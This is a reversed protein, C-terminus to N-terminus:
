FCRAKILMAGYLPSILVGVLVAVIVFRPKQPHCIVKNLYEHYGRWNKPDFIMRATLKAIYGLSHEKFILYGIASKIRPSSQSESLKRYGDLDVLARQAWNKRFSDNGGRSNVIIQNSYYFNGGRTIIELLIFVHSYLSGIYSKDFAILNWENRKVIISSLYSFLGGLTKCELIYKELDEKGSLELTYNQNEVGIWSRKRVFNMELDCDNRNYLAVAPNVADLDKIIKTTCGEIISDDSGMLWVFEGSAIKVSNLYNIDAGQNSDFKFYVVNDFDKKFEEVLHQTRDTSGNDSICIEFINPDCEKVISDLLEKLYKERNFTPICISIKTM